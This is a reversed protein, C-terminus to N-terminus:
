ERLSKDVIVNSKNAFMAEKEGLLDVGCAQVRKLNYDNEAILAHLSGM